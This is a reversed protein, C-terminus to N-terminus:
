LPVIVGCPWNASLSVTPNAQFETCSSGVLEFHNEDVPRWGDPSGCERETGNLTVTGECARDFTLTGQVEIVCGVAGGIIMLLADRLADPNMPEFIPAGPTAAEDMGLGLNAVKQLDAQQQLGPALSVVYTQIGKMMAARTADLTSQTDPPAMALAMAVCFPDPGPPFLPIPSPVNPCMATVSAPLGGCGNPMGDTALLIVHPDADPMMSVDPMMDVVAQLAEGTPTGGNPMITQYSTTIPMANMLAPAVQTLSPCMGLEASQYINLGFEVATELQPVVGAMPDILAKQLETWRTGAGFPENMSGSGDVVINVIPKKRTVDVEINACQKSSGPDAAGGAVPGGMSDTNGFGDDGGGGPGANGFPSDGDGSGTGGGSRGGNTEGADASCAALGLVAALGVM